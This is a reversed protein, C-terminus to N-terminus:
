IAIIVDIRDLNLASNEYMPAGRSGVGAEVHFIGRARLSHRWVLVLVVPDLDALSVLRFDRLRQQRLVLFRDVLPLDLAVDDSVGFDLWLSLRELGFGLARM